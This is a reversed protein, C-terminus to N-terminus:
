WYKKVNPIKSISLTESKARASRSGRDEQEKDWTALIVPTLVLM